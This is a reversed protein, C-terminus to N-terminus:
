TPLPSQAELQWYHMSELELLLLLASGVSLMLRSGLFIRAKGM